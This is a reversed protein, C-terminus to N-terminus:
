ALKQIFFVCASRRGKKGPAELCTSYMRSSLLKSHMCGAGWPPSACTLLAYMRSGLSAPAHLFAYMGSWLPAPARVFTYMRCRGSCTFIFLDQEGSIGSCTVISVDKEPPAGSCTCIYVDQEGPNALARLFTVDQEGLRRSCTYIIGFSGISICQFNYLCAFSFQFMRSALSAPARLFAYMRTALPALAYLFEWM